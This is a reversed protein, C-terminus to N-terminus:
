SMVVMVALRTVFSIVFTAGIWAAWSWRSHEGFRLRHAIASQAAVPILDILAGIPAWPTLLPIPFFIAAVLGYNGIRNGIFIWAVWWVLDGITFALIWRGTSFEELRERGDFGIDKSASNDTMRELDTMSVAM